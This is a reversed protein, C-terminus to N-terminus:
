QRIKQLRYIRGFIVTRKKAEHVSINKKMYKYFMILLTKPWYNYIIGTVNNLSNM